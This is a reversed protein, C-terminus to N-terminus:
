AERRQPSSTARAPSMGPRIAARETARACKRGKPRRTRPSSPWRSAAEDGTGKSRGPNGCRSTSSGRPSGPAKRDSQWFPLAMRSPGKQKGHRRARRQRRVSRGKPDDTPGGTTEERTTGGGTARPSGSRRPPGTAPARRRGGRQRPARSELQGAYAPGYTDSGPDLPGPVQPGNCGVPGSRDTRGSRGRRRSASRAPPTDKRAGKSEFPSATFRARRAADREKRVAPASKSSDVPSGSSASRRAGSSPISM